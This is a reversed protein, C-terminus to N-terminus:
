GRGGLFVSGFRELCELVHFVLFQQEATSKEIKLVPGAPAAPPNKVKEAYELFREVHNGQILSTVLFPIRSDKFYGSVM